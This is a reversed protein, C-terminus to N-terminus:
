IPILCCPDKMFLSYQNPQPELVIIGNVNRINDRTTQYIIQQKELLVLFIHITTTRPRYPVHILALVKQRADFQHHLNGFKADQMPLDLNKCSANGSVLFELRIKMEKYMKHFRIIWQGNHSFVLYELLPLHNLALQAIIKETVTDKICGDWPDFYIPYWIPYGYRSFQKISYKRRTWTQTRTDWKLRYQNRHQQSILIATHVDARISTEIKEKHNLHIEMSPDNECSPALSYSSLTSYSVILLILPDNTLYTTFGRRKSVFLVDPSLFECITRILDQPFFDTLSPTNFCITHDMWKLFSM